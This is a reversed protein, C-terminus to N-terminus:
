IVSCGDEVAGVLEMGDVSELEMRGELVVAVEVGVMGEDGGWFGLLSLSSSKM